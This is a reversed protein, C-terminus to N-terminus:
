AVQAAKKNGLFGFFVVVAIGTVLLFPIIVLATDANQLHVFYDTSLVNAHAKQMETACVLIQVAAALIMIGAFVKGVGYFSVTQALEKLSTSIIITGFSVVILIIGVVAAETSDTTLASVVLAIIGLVFMAISIVTGCSFSKLTKM